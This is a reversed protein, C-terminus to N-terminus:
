ETKLTDNQIKVSDIHSVNKNSQGLKKTSITSETKPQNKKIKDWLGFGDTIVALILGIGVLIKWSVSIIKIFLSKENANFKIRKSLSYYDIHKIKGISISIKSNLNIVKEKDILFSLIELIENKDINSNIAIDDLTVENNESNHIIMIVKKIDKKRM